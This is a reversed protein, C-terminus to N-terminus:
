YPYEPIVDSQRADLRLEGPAGAPQHPMVPSVREYGVGLPPRPDPDGKNPWLSMAREALATITIVTAAVGVASVAFLVARRVRRARTTKM